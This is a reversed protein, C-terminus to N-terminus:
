SFNITIDEFDDINENNLDPYMSMIRSRKKNVNLLKINTDMIAKM